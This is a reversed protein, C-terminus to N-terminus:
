SPELACFSAVIFLKSNKRTLLMWHVNKDSWHTLFIALMLSISDKEIRNCSICAMLLRFIPPVGGVVHTEPWLVYIQLFLSLM